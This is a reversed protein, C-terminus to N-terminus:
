SKYTVQLVIVPEATSLLETLQSVEVLVVVPHSIVVVADVVVTGAHGRLADALILESYALARAAAPVTTSPVVYGNAKQGVSERIGPPKVRESIPLKGPLEGDLVELIAGLVDLEAVPVELRPELVTSGLVAELVEVRGVSVDLTTELVELAGEVREVIVDLLASDEVVCDDVVSELEDDTGSLELVSLM